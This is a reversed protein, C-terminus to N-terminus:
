NRLCDSYWNRLRRAALSFSHQFGLQLLHSRYTVSELLNFGFIASISTWCGNIACVTKTGTEWAVLRWALVTNFVLNYNM